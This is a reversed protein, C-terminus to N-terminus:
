LTTLGSHATVETSCSGTKVPSIKDGLINTKIACQGTTTLLNRGQYTMKNQVKVPQKVCIHHQVNFVCPNEKLYKYPIAYNLALKLCNIWRTQM